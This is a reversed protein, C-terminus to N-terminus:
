VSPRSSAPRKETACAGPEERMEHCIDCIRATIDPVKGNRIDKALDEILKEAPREFVIRYGRKGSLYQSVASPAIGLIKAVDQQAVGNKVLETALAARIAPLVDWVIMQCPTKVM